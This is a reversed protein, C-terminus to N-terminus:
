LSTMHKPVHPPFNNSTRSMKESTVDKKNEPEFLECVAEIEVREPYKGQTIDILLPLSTDVVHIDLASPTYGRGAREEQMRAAVDKEAKEAAKEEINRQLFSKFAKYFTENKRTASDM